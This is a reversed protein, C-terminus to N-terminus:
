PRGAAGHGAPREEGRGPAPPAGGDPVIRGRELTVARDCVAMAQAPDHSAVLLTRGERRLLAPLSAAAAHDLGSFPEDALLVDPDHLLARALSVRQTEGRSLTHVLADRKAAMGVAELLGAGRAPDVAHLRAYFTLNEAVSLYPYLYPQHGVYGIHGRVARPPSGDVTVTGSTPRLLGAVLKLLTTKGSGNHGFLAVAEGSGVELDVGRLAVSAGYRKTVGAAVIVAM